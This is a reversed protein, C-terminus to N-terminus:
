FQCNEASAINHLQIDPCTRKCLGTLVNGPGVEVLQSVGEEALQLLTERWRVPNTMQDILRNKLEAADVTPIPNVNSLVPIIAEGFSVNNLVQQFQEAATAMLPSHFAGSVKLPVARKAKVESLVADVAEPAGSIVGQQPSNDNALVVDSNKELAEDLQARDFKMLAVMKGGAATDMLEARKQVLRLGAEFGFVRAAYLASYEGLSHGAVYQPFYGGEEILLDTLICEIVYLCPQTYLTRSLNEEDQRCVELVSWGLIKEAQQFKEQGFKTEALDTEMGVTQSGQGPFVFAFKSM